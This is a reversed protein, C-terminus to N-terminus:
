SAATPPTPRLVEPHTLHLRLLQDRAPGDDRNTAPAVMIQLPMGRLDVVLHRKRGYDQARLLADRM